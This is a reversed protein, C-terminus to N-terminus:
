SRVYDEIFKEMEWWFFSQRVLEMTKDERIYGAVMSNPEAEPIDKKLQLDDPIL